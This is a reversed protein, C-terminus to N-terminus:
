PAASATREPLLPPAGSPLPAAPDAAFAAIDQWVREAKLDRLLMHYGDAYLATRATAPLRGAAVEASDRPIIDDRGGYLYLTPIKLRATGKSATEMLNVLGYVTDIRTEFIMLPDRGNKRLMDINDSPTIKRQVGRPATVPRGGVAHAGMWLTARYLPNLTSWGWVAPAVLVLRDADPPDESSFAAISVAGGMSDGVVTLPVGPHRARVLRVLTRLDQTMLVEGGWVGRNPSRGFGRQDLAYTVIGRERAWWPGALYFTEAYDNMGHLGVVVAKVDAAQLDSGWVQLGLSAGDEATMWKDTLLPGVFGGPQAMAKQITPACASTMAALAVALSRLLNLRPRILMAALELAL